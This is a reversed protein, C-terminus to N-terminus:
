PGYRLWRKGGHDERLDVPVGFVDSLLGANVASAARDAVLRGGQLLLVRDSWQLALGLEHTVVVATLGSDCSTRLFQWLSIQHRLDLFATPEDLLLVRPEQALAAALVM